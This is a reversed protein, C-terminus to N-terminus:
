KTRKLLKTAFEELLDGRKLIKACEIAQSTHHLLLERVLDKGKETVLSQETGDDLIDDALQFALGLHHGFTKVALVVDEDVTMYTAGAKFSNSILEATKLAYVSMYDKKGDALDLAQGTVMNLAGDAILKASKTFTVENRGLATQMALTLLGDGILIGKSEGFKKHTSLKGRRFDDNDMAPLDDHVLSYSHILEVICALDVLGAYKEDNIVEGTALAGLYVSMPRVRKGGDKVAYVYGEQLPNEVEIDFVRPDVNQHSYIEELRNDVAQVFREM